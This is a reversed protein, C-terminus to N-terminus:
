RPKLRPEAFDKTTIGVFDEHLDGLRLKELAVEEIQKRNDIFIPVMTDATTAGFYDQLAEESVRCLIRAGDVKVPFM